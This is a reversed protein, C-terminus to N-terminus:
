ECTSRSTSPAASSPRTRSTTGRERIARSPAASTSRSEAQSRSRPRRSAPTSRPRWTRPKRAVIGFRAEWAAWRAADGPRARRRPRAPRRVGAAARDARRQRPAPDLGPVLSELDARAAREPPRAHVRLRRRADAVLRSALAPDRRLTPRTACVVLEPYAPAGYDDVRFITSAAPPPAPADRGRRELVRDRGVVRGALLDPSPTSASRSRTSAAPTAARRRRRDLQLVATDSPVGTIGVPRDRSAPRPRRVAAGRDGRGAPAAVIAM